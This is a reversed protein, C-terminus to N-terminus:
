DRSIENSLEDTDDGRRPFHEALLAGAKTVAHVVADTFHGERLHGGMEAVLGEWFAPGCKEHVGLDGCIAFKRSRPAFYLLVGNRERTKTMGLKEFRREAHSLADDVEKSSVFVRIEGSTVSEAANIAAVIKAEDLLDTFESPKM